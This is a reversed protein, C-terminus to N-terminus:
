PNIRVRMYLNVTANPALTTSSSSLSAAATTGLTCASAPSPTVTVGATTSFPAGLCTTNPPTSDFIQVASVSQTGVNTAVVRYVICAGPVAGTTIQGSSYTLAGVGVNTMATGCTPDLVQMKDLSVQGVVVITTDTATSAAPAATSNLTGTATVTVSTINTQGATAGAPAQLVVIYNQSAGAALPLPSLSASTFPTANETGDLTCNNNTDRYLTASAPWPSALSNLNSITVTTESVNGANTVTHCYSISGSPFVQGSNNPTILLSRVTNIFLQDRLVDVSNGAANATTTTPSIARFYLDITGAPAGAPVSVVACVLTTVGPQIVGTNTIAQGTAGGGALTSCDGAGGDLYFGIQYSANGVTPANQLTLPTNFPNTTGNYTWAGSGVNYALDFSDAVAGTNRVDIKYRVQTSPVAAIATQAAAEGTLSQGFGAGTGGNNQYASCTGQVPLLDQTTCGAAFANAGGTYIGKTTRPNMLDVTSGVIAALRDVVTNTTAPSLSSGARLILELNSGTANAPLIARVVIRYGCPTTASATANPITVGSAIAPCAFGSATGPIPGTDVAGDGDSDTLPTNGDGRLLLFSTGSPFNNALATVNYADTAVGTNWVWNNFVVVSGQAASAVLNLDATNALGSPVTTPNAGDTPAGAVATGDGGGGGTTGDNLLVAGTAATTIITFPVTNTANPNSSLTANAVNTDIVGGNSAYTGSPTGGASLVGSGSGNTANGIINICAGAVTATGGSNPPQITTPLVGASYPTTSTSAGDLYCYQANNNNIPGPGNQTTDFSFTGQSNADLKEIVLVIKRSDTSLALNYRNPTSGGVAGNATIAAGNLKANLTGAFVVGTQLADAIVLGFVPQTGTNRFTLTYTVPTTGATGSSTGIAKSINVVGASSISAADTNSQTATVTTGSTATVVFSNQAGSSNLTAQAVFCAQAAAAVPGLSTIATSNDAVGDCNADIYFLPATAPLAGGATPTTVTLAFTDAGNGTNTITHPFTIPQGPAGIKTQSSSLTLSGVAQVITSVSNSVTIRSVSNSDIYTASAQNGISTGALPAANAQSTGLMLFMGLMLLAAAWFRLRFFDGGGKASLKMTSM